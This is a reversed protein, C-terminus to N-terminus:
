WALWRVVAMLLIWAPLLFMPLPFSLFVNILLPFSWHSSPANEKFKMRPVVQIKPNRKKLSPLRRRYCSTNTHCLSNGSWNCLADWHGVDEGDEVRELTKCDEHRNNHQVLLHSSFEAVLDARTLYPIKILDDLSLNWHNKRKQILHVFKWRLALAVLWTGHDLRVRFAKLFKSSIILSM